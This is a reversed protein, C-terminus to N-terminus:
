TLRPGLNNGNVADQATRLVYVAYRLRKLAAGSPNERRDLANLIGESAELLETIQRNNLPSDGKRQIKGLRGGFVHETKMNQFRRIAAMRILIRAFNAEKVAKRRGDPKLTRLIV